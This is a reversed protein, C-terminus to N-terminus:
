DDNRQGRDRAVFVLVAPVLVVGAIALLGRGESAHALQHLWDGAAFGPHAWASSSCTALFLLATMLTPFLRM